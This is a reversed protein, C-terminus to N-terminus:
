EREERRWPQEWLAVWLVLSFLFESNQIPLEVARDTLENHIRTLKHSYDDPVQRDAKRTCRIRTCIGPAVALDPEAIEGMLRRRHRHDRLVHVVRFARDLGHRGAEVEGFGVHVSQSSRRGLPVPPRHQVDVHVRTTSTGLPAPQTPGPLQHPPHRHRHLQALLLRVLDPHHLVPPNQYSLSFLLPQIRLQIQANLSLRIGPENELEVTFGLTARLNELNLPINSLRNKSALEAEPM